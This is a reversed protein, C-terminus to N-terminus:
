DDCGGDIEVVSEGVFVAKVKHMIMNIVAMTSVIDILYKMFDYFSSTGFLNNSVTFDNDPPLLPVSGGSYLTHVVGDTDPYQIPPFYLSSVSTGNLLTDFATDLMGSAGSYAGFTDDFIDHVSVIWSSVWESDPVFLGQIGEVLGSLIDSIGGLIGNTEEIDININIDPIPSTSGVIGNSGTAPSDVYPFAIYLHVTSSDSRTNGYFTAQISYGSSVTISTMDAPCFTAFYGGGSNVTSGLRIMAMKGSPTGERANEFHFSQEDFVWDWSPSIFTSSVIPESSYNYGGTSLAIVSHIQTTNFISYNPRIRVSFYSMNPIMGPVEAYYHLFQTGIDLYELSESEANISKYNCVRVNQYLFTTDVYGSGNYYSASIETGFLDLCESETM